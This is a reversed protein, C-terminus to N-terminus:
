LSLNQNELITLKERASELEAKLEAIRRGTAEAQVALTERREDLLGAVM